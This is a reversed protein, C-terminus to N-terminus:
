LDVGGERNVSESASYQSFLSLLVGTQYRM